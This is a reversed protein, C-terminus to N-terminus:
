GKQQSESLKTNLADSARKITDTKVYEKAMNLFRAADKVKGDKLYDTALKMINREREATRDAKYAFPSVKKKMREGCNPCVINKDYALGPVIILERLYGCKLCIYEYIPM